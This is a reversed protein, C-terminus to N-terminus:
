GLSVWQEVDEYTAAPLESNTHDSSNGLKHAQCERRPYVIRFVNGESELSVQIQLRHLYHLLGLLSFNVATSFVSSM